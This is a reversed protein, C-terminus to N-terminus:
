INTENSVSSSDTSDSVSSEGDASRNDDARIEYYYKQVFKDAHDVIKRLLIQGEICELREFQEHLIRELKPM